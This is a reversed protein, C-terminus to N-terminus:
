RPKRPPQERHRRLRIEPYRRPVYFRVDFEVLRRDMEQEFRLLAYDNVAVPHLEPYAWASLPLQDSM